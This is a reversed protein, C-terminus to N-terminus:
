KDTLIGYGVRSFTSIIDKHDKLKKRLRQIHVDVTRETVFTDDSWVRNIIEDRTFYRGPNELFLLLLQFETKTLKLLESNLYVMFSDKMLKLDKYVLINESHTSLQEPANRKLVSKVRLILEKLSFPKTIYDDSGIELGRIREEESIKATLFIIPINQFRPDTRLKRCVDFGNIGEMMIDLIILDPIEDSNILTNILQNGSTFEKTVYGERSLNITLIQLIDEEDDVLYIKNSM